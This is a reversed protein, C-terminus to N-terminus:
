ARYSAAGTIIMWFQWVHNVFSNHTVSLVVASHESDRLLRVFVKALLVSCRLIHHLVDVM